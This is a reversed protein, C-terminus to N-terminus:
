VGEGEMREAEAKAKIRGDTSNDLRWQIYAKISEFREKETPEYKVLPAYEAPTNVYGNVWEVVQEIPMGFVTAYRQLMPGSSIKM